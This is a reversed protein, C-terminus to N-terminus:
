LCYILELRSSHLLRNIYRAISTQMLTLSHCAVQVRLPRVNLCHQDDHQDEHDESDGDELDEDDEDPVVPTLEVKAQGGGRTAPRM